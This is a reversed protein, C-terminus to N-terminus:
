PWFFFPLLGWSKILKQNVMKLRHLISQTNSHKNQQNTRAKNTLPLKNTNLHNKEISIALPVDNYRLASMPKKTIDPTIAHWFKELDTELDAPNLGKIRKNQYFFYTIQSEGIVKWM